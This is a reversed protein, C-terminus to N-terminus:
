PIIRTVFMTSNNDVIIMDGADVLGDGNLDSLLYGTSFFAADNDIAILDGSDVLGDQNVDGSFVLYKGNLQRLNNGYAKADSDTMDYSIVENYFSLPQSTWTEISNRHLVSIYFYGRALPSIRLTAHGNTDLSAPYPGYNVPYPPQSGHMRVSIEDAIAGEYQYNDQNRAKNMGTGNFLGELLITLHLLKVSDVVLIYNERHLSNTGTSDTVTLSVSYSGQSDFRVVPEESHEDTGSIFTCTNPLITWTREVSPRSSNEYLIATNGIVVVTDSAAFDARITDIVTIYNLRTM